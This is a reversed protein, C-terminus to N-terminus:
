VQLGYVDIGPPIDASGNQLVSAYEAASNGFVDREVGGNVLLPEAGRCVRCADIIENGGKRCVVIGADTAASKLQALSLFLAYQNGPRYIPIRLDEYEILGRRREVCDGFALQHVIELQHEFIFSDDNDRVPQASDSIGIIYHIYVIASYDFLACVVPKDPLFAHVIGQDLVM